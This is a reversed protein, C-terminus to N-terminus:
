SHTYLVFFDGSLLMDHGRHVLDTVYEFRSVEDRIDASSVIPLSSLAVVVAITVAAAAVAPTAGTNSM